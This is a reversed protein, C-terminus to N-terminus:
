PFKGEKTHLTFPNPYAWIYVFSCFNEQQPTQTLKFCKFIPLDEERNSVGVSVGEGMRDPTVNLMYLISTGSYEEKKPDETSALNSIIPM